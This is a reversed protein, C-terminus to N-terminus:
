KAEYISIIEGMLVFEGGANQYNYLEGGDLNGDDDYECESCQNTLTFDIKRIQTIKILYKKQKENIHNKIVQDIQQSNAKLKVFYSDHYNDSSGKVIYGISDNGVIDSINLENIFILKGIYKYYFISYGYDSQDNLSDIHIAEGFNKTFYEFAKQTDVSDKIKRIEYESKPKTDKKNGSCGIFSISNIGVAIIITLAIVVTFLLSINDILKEKM